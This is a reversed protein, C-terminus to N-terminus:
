LLNFKKQSIFSRVRVDLEKKDISDTTSDEKFTENACAKTFNFCYKDSQIWAVELPVLRDM